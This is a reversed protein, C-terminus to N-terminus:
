STHSIVLVPYPTKAQSSGLRFAACSNAAFCLAFAARSESRCGALATGQSGNPVLATVRATACCLALSYWRLRIQIV